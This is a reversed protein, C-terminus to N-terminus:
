VQFSVQARVCVVLRKDALEASLSEMLFHVHFDILIRVRAFLRVLTTLPARLNLCSVCRLYWM